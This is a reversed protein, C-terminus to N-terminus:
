LDKQKHATLPGSDSEAEAKMVAKAIEKRLKKAADENSEWDLSHGYVVLTFSGALAHGIRELIAKLQVRLSDMM